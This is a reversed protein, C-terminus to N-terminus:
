VRDSDVILKAVEKMEQDTGNNKFVNVIWLVFRCNSQVYGLEPNIRDISPSRFKKANSLFEAGTVACRGTWVSTAWESTLDFDLGKEAARAKAKSVLRIWPKTKQQRRWNATHQEKNDARYKRMRGAERDANQAYWERKTKKYAAKNKAQRARSKARFEEPQSWYEQKRKESRCSKCLSHRNYTGIFMQKHFNDITLSQLCGLCKKTPLLTGVFDSDQQLTM